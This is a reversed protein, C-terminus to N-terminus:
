RDKYVYSVDAFHSWSVHFKGCPLTFQAKIVGLSKRTKKREASTESNSVINMGKESRVYNRCFQNEKRRQRFSMSLCAERCLWLARSSVELPFSKWEWNIHRWSDGASRFSSLKDTTDKIMGSMRDQDWPRKLNVQSAQFNYWQFSMKQDDTSKSLTAHFHFLSKTVLSFPESRKLHSVCDGASQQSPYQTQVRFRRFHDDNACHKQEAFLIDSRRVDAKTSTCCKCVYLLVNILQITIQDVICFTVDFM